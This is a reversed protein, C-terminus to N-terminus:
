GSIQGDLTRNTPTKSVSQHARVFVEQLVDEAEAENRVISRIHGLLPERYRGLDLPEPTNVAVSSQVTKCRSDGRAPWRRETVGARSNNM